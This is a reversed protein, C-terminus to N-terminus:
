RKLAIAEMEVMLGPFALAKVVVLTSAPRHGALIESRVESMERYKDADTIFGTMKIIDRLGAGAAALVTKINEMAQRTQVRIDGEGVLKGDPDLAVQGSVYILNGIQKGQVFPLRDDWAWGPDVDIPKVAPATPRRAAAKKAPAAKKVVRRAKAAGARTARKSRTAM